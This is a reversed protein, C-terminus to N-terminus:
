QYQGNYNPQIQISGQGIDWDRMEELLSRAFKEVILMKEVPADYDNGLRLALNYIFCEQWEQPIELTQSPETVDAMYQYYTFTVYQNVDPTTQWVYYQGQGLTPVYYYANVSGTSLKDVQDFYQQRAWTQVRIESQQGYWNRRSDTVRMPRYIEGSYVFCSAGIPADAELPDTITVQTASDVSVITTWQRTQADLRIGINDDASWNATSAVTLTTAGSLAASSLESPYFSTRPCCRDGSTGLYYLPKQYELFLVAERQMWILIDSASWSKIMLNLNTLGDQFEQATLPQESAKVGCKNFAQTILQTATLEYTITGSIAM